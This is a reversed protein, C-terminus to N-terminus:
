GAEEGLFILIIAGKGLVCFRSFVLSRILFSSSV